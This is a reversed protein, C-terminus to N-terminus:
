RKQPVYLKITKRDLDRLEKETWGIIGASNGIISVARSNIATVVNRSYLHSKLIKKVRRVYESRIKEKTETDKIDGAELIGLYKYGKDAEIEKIRDGSQIELGESHILKGEKMVLVRCKSIGFEMRIDESFIYVTNMLTDHQKETKGFLKLDDMYLLHNITPGAKRVEYGAKVKRLIFTMPILSIVFLLPSLSVGQFIGRKRRM